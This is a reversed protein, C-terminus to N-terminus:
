SHINLTHAHASPCLLQQIQQTIIKNAANATPKALFRYTFLSSLFVRYSAFIQWLPGQWLNAQMHKHKHIIPILSITHLCYPRFNEYFYRCTALSSLFRDTFWTLCFLKKREWGTHKPNRTTTQWLKFHLYVFRIWFKMVLSVCLLCNLHPM